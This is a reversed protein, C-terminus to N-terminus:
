RGQRDAVPPLQKVQNMMQALTAPWGQHISSLVPEWGTQSRLKRNSIRLSRVLTTGVCGFLPTAWGPIFRPARQGIEQALTGFCVARSVPENDVVNYPGSACRLAAVVATAADDHSVSSIYGSSDGPVPAWGLKLAAIYSRMQMADPGYFAAFRLSVGTGGAQAFRAISAEADLVSSNYPAPALSTTEEIWRDACDPYTPAFSEQIVREVGTALAADVLNRVGLTRIRDNQHWASRLMMKWAASPMHTALNILTDHGVLARKLAELDFLDAHVQRAGGAGLMQNSLERRVAVTVSHGQALLLPLARCGIVGTAGTLLIRM